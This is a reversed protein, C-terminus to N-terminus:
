KVKAVQAATVASAKNGWASREYTIIAAIEADKLQGKFAPMQGNYTQGNVKIPGSLGDKVTHIVKAPDGTEYPNKALPPFTGPLGQGNAQHCSACNEGFLAKGNLAAFAVSSPHRPSYIAAATLIAAAVFFLVFRKLIIERRM